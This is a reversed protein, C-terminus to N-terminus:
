IYGLTQLPPSIIEMIAAIQAADLNQMGKGLNKTSVHDLNINAVVGEDLGIFSAIRFLYDRPNAVFQEYRVTFVREKDIQSLEDLAKEVSRRWQIACVTLLDKTAVDEDIGKYRPGWTGAQHKAPFIAKSITTRAYTMAYGFAQTIPFSMAKKTIYRWDPPALWQRHVSEVVDRGDRTLHIFLAEPFVRHVFLPRLTNGVTKEILFPTGSSHYHIFQERIRRIVQDTAMAPTLEDHPLKENGLRWVYNIDYPIKDMQPHLAITDRLMKTGSRAAGILIVPRFPLQSTM